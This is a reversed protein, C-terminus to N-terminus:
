FELRYNFVPLIGTQHLYRLDEVKSDYYVSHINLRNTVNQIDIMLTHTVNKRNVKYKIMFDFRYYAGAWESFPRDDFYRGRGDMRSLELDLPTIRNGGNLLAKGNVGMIRHQQKGTKWEKGGILNVQYRGNFRTNYWEGNLARYRSDFLSSTLLFYYNNNFNKEMTLDLGINKGRGENVARGSQIIDWVDIVNILSGNVTPDDSVPVDFLYQFYAEGRIRFHKNFQYEYGAVAHAAKTFRLDKNPAHRIESGGTTEVYYFSPHEPKSHLGVAMTLFQNPRITKRLAFRPEVSWTDNLGFYNFHLGSTATLSESWRHKWQGFVQLQHATGNNQLYIRYQGSDDDLADAYLKYHQYSVMAGAKFTHYANHKHTYVSNIRYTNNVFRDTYDTVKRYDDAADLYYGDGTYRERSVAMVTRLYSQDTLLYKHVLGVTGTEQREDFGADGFETDWKTSDAEPTHYSRNKGGLGFLNFQGLKRTPVAINFSIDGYAPLADGAPSVGVADLISLTSYRFNVLYSAQGPKGLPGEMAAEVGLAGLMFAYEGHTNNGKRLNLDFAGSLANGFEAPFAGTYFDSTSLTSSSLMSIGGGTNGLGGFHNPNPIEIGELRWLVGRPSNGRVIIENFLDSSGGTLSVGAYNLAMRAPDFMSGAYRGTEEVSFMRASVLAMENLPRSKDADAKVVAETIMHVSETLEITVVLEKGSIVMQEPLVVPEYGLYTAVLTHRGVPVQPIEFMGYPDTVAGLLPITREVYVHAGVLPMHSDKDVLTGRITQVPVQAQLAYGWLLM